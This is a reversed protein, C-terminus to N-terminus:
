TSPEAIGLLARVQRVRLENDLALQTWERKIYVSTNNPHEEYIHALLTKDKWATAADRSTFTILLGHERNARLQVIKHALSEAKMTLIETPKVQESTNFQLMIEKREFDYIVDTTPDPTTAM